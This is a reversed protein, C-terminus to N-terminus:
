AVRVRREIWGLTLSTSYTLILYLLAVVMFTEFSAFTVSRLQQGTQTLEVLAIASALSSTKILTALENGLPPLAIVFAQPLVIWRLAKYRTMGISFSAEWQGRDVAQISGRVIESVYAGSNIGLGVVAAWFSDLRIGFAPLGFYILFLQVLVPTGRIFEIYAVAAGRVPRISSLKAIGGVLGLVLGLMAALASVELTILLGKLLFPFQNFVPTFDLHIAM